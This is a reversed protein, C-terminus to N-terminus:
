AFAIVFPMFYNFCPVMSLLGMWSPKNMREAVSMWAIVGLFWWICPCLFFFLVWWVPKKAVQFLLVINLIPVFAFWGNPENLKQAIAYMPFAWLLWALVLSGTFYSSQILDQWDM